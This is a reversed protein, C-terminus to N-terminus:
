TRETQLFKGSHAPTGAKEIARDLHAPWEALHQRDNTFLSHRHSTATMTTENVLYELLLIRANRAIVMNWGRM